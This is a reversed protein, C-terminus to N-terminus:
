ILTSRVGALLEAMAASADPKPWVGRPPAWWPRSEPRM